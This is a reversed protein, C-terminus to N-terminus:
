KLKKLIKAAEWVSTKGFEAKWIVYNGERDIAIFSFCPFHQNFFNKEFFNEPDNRWNTKPTTYNKINSDQNKALWFLNYTGIRKLKEEFDSDFINWTSLETNRNCPDLGPYYIFIWFDKDTDPKMLENLETLKQKELKSINKRQVIQFIILSDSITYGHVTKKTSRKESFENSNIEEGSENYYRINNQASIKIFFFLIILHQIKM